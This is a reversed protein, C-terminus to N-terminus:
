KTCKSHRRFYRAIGNPFGEAPAAFVILADVADVAVVEEDVDIDVEVDVDVDVDAAADDNFDDELPLVILLSALIPETFLSSM